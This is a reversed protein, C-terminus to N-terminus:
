VSLLLDGSNSQRSSACPVSSPVAHMSQPEYYHTVLTYIVAVSLRPFPISFFLFSTFPRSLFQIYLPFPSSLEVSSALLLPYVTKSDMPNIFFFSALRCGHPHSFPLYHYSPYISDAHMCSLYCRHATFTSPSPPDTALVLFILLNFPSRRQRHRLPSSFLPLSYHCPFTFHSLIVLSDLFLDSPIFRSDTFPSVVSFLTLALSEGLHTPPVPAQYAALLFIAFACRYTTFPSPSIALMRSSLAFLSVHATICRDFSAALLISIDNRYHLISFCHRSGSAVHSM